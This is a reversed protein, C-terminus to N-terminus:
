KEPISLLHLTKIFSSFPIGLQDCVATLETVHIPQHLSDFRSTDTSDFFHIERFGQLLEEPDFWEYKPTKVYSKYTTDPNDLYYGKSVFKGTVSSRYVERTGPSSTFRILVYM